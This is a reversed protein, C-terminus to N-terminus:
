LREYQYGELLACCVDLVPTQVHHRVAIQKVTGQIFDYEIPVGALTDYYMSTGMLPDYTSYIAMIDNVTDSNFSHGAAEAVAIGEVLLQETLSKVVPLEVVQATNKTLATVSNIGLNVLLKFWSQRDYDTDPTLELETMHLDSRMQHMATTNPVILKKDQFHRVRDATKQGSIYVVAQVANFGDMLELQGIGNQCLIVQSKSHCMNQLAPLISKLKTAKVAVFIVDFTADNLVLSSVNMKYEGDVTQLLVQQEQRGFLTVDHVRSIEHAIVTGVAGPGIVAYKTM